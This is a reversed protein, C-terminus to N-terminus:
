DLKCIYKLSIVGFDEGIGFQCVLRREFTLNKMLLPGGLPFIEIYPGFEM